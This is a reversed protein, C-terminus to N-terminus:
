SGKIKHQANKISIYNKKVSVIMNVSSIVCNTHETWEQNDLRSKRMIDVFIKTHANVLWGNTSFTEQQVKLALLVTIQLSYKHIRKNVQRQCSMM